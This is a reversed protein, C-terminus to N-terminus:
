KPYGVTQTLLVEQKETLKLLSQLGEKDYSGRVVSNLNESACFLYINQSIFGCDILAADRSNKDLNAVFVFNVPAIEVFAQRGTTAQHNGKAKLILKQAKGDYFYIGTKLSVYLDIEQKDQSSPATRKDERNFGYAAWVLDSLTQLSLEKDSYERNSQRANLADM